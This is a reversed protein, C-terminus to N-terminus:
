IINGEMVHDIQVPPRRPPQVYVHTTVPPDSLLFRPPRLLPFGNEARGISGKKKWYALVVLYVHKYIIIM